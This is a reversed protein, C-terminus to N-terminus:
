RDRNHSRVDDWISSVFIKLSSYGVQDANLELKANTAAWKADMKRIVEAQSLRANAALLEEVIDRAVRHWTDRDAQRQKSRLKGARSLKDRTELAKSAISREKSNQEARGWLYGMMVADEITNWPDSGDHGDDARARAIVVV